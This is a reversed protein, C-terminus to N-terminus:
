TAFHNVKAMISADIFDDIARDLFIRLGDGHSGILSAVHLVEFVHLIEQIFSVRAMDSNETSTASGNKGLFDLFQMGVADFADVM